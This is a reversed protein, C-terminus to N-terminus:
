MFSCVNTDDICFYNDIYKKYLSFLVEKLSKCFCLSLFSLLFFLFLIFHWYEGISCLLEKKKYWYTLCVSLQNQVWSRVRWGNEYLSSIGYLENAVFCGSLPAVFKAKQKTLYWLEVSFGLHPCGVYLPLISLPAVWPFSFIIIAYLIRLNFIDILDLLSISFGHLPRYLIWRSIVTIVRCGYLGCWVILFQEGFM